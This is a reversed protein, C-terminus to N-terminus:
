LGAECGLGKGGDPDVGPGPFPSEPAQGQQFLYSLLRIADTIDLTESNNVDGADLCGGAMGLYLHRLLAIPDSVDVSGDLNFDGRIFQVGERTATFPLGPSFVSGSNRATIEAAGPAIEPVEVVVKGSVAPDFVVSPSETGRFFVEMGDFFDTGTITVGQGAAAEAPDVSLLVPSPFAATSTITISDSASVEGDTALGLLTLENEGPRLPVTMRWRSLSTWTVEPSVPLGDVAISQVNIGGEGELTTSLANVALNQGGNTTIRFPVPNPLRGRVYSARQRIYNLLGSFNRGTMSGYHETWHRMYEANFTKDIIDDLHGYFRRTNSPIEIIRRLNKPDVPEALIVPPTEDPRPEALIHADEFPDDLPDLPAGVGDGTREAGHRPM